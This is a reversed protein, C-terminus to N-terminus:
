AMIFFGCHPSLLVTRIKHTKSDQLRLWTVWALWGAPYTIRIRIWKLLTARRQVRQGM